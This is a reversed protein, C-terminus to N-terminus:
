TLSSHILKLIPSKGIRQYLKFFRRKMWLYIRTLQLSVVVDIITLPNNILEASPTDEYKKQRIKDLRQLLNEQQRLIEKAKPTSILKNRILVQLVSEARFPSNRQSNM